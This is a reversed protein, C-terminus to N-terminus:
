KKGPIFKEINCFYINKIGHSKAIQIAKKDIDLGICKKAVNTLTIHLLNNNAICEATKPSATAGLHLIIKNRCIDSLFDERNVLKTKLEFKIM